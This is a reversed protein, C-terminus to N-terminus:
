YLRPVVKTGTISMTGNYALPITLKSIIYDGDIGANPESVHILTNPELYYIPISTISVSEACYAHNYLLNDIANKASKGQTSRSFMSNYYEEPVQFYIYGFDSMLEGQKKDFVIPPPDGYYIAKVDKDNSVKPRQGIEKVSYQALDSDWVELFDFWFLLSRPSEYVNKRWGGKDEPYEIVVWAGAGNKAKENYQLVLYGGAPIAGIFNTGDKCIVWHTGNLTLQLTKGGTHGKVFKVGLTISDTLAFETDSEILAISKTEDSAEDESAGQYRAGGYYEDWESNNKQQIEELPTYLYRWKGELDVYYQEYGTLGSPYYDQNAEAVKQRFDDLHNYKRYDKAMRYIIERWDCEIISLNDPNDPVEDGCWYIVSVQGKTELGYKTNYDELESDLVEISKYYTPKVDIAYRMHIALDNSNTGWITFDNKVNAINPTNNFATFLATDSFSYSYPTAAFYPDVYIQGAENEQVPTWATNLSTRQKQFVFRGDLDYFYEYDGLTNKIKDLISTITEGAGSALESPYVLDIEAYGATEGYEIKAVYCPEEGYKVLEGSILGDIGYTDYSELDELAIISGDSKEVLAEGDLTGQSYQIPDNAKRILYLPSDYKYDLLELGSKDLDNVIINHSVEGGYHSVLDIILQKLTIKIKQIDGDKNIEDYTDLTTAANIVGGMEGNLTCMKDKGSINVTYSNSSYAASFSTILFVGQNFWVIEPSDSVTNKVGVEVKFKTKLSWLYDSIKVEDAVLSIQCTRRVASAGDINISGSTARGEIAELPRENKDLAILKVYITKNPQRDLQALFDKDM